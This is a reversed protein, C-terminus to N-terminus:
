LVSFGRISCKGFLNKSYTTHFRTIVCGPFIPGLLNEKQRLRIDILLLRPTPLKTQHFAAWFLPGKSRGVMMRLREHRDTTHSQLHPHPLSSPFFSPPFSLHRFLRARWGGPALWGGAENRMGANGVDLVTQVHWPPALHCSECSIPESAM